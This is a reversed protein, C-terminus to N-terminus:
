VACIFWAVYSQGKQLPPHNIPGSGAHENVTLALVVFGIAAAVTIAALALWTMSGRGKRCQNTSVCLDQTPNRVVAGWCHSATNAVPGGARSYKLRQLQM